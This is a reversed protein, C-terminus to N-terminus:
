SATKVAAELPQRLPNSTAKARATVRGEPVDVMVFECGCATAMPLAGLM